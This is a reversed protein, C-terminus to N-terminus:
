YPKGRSMNLLELFKQCEAATYPFTSLRSTLTDPLGILPRFFLAMQNQLSVVMLM